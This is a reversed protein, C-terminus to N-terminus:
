KNAKVLALIEDARGNSGLVDKIKHEVLEKVYSRGDAIYQRPDFHEPHAAELEQLEKLLKDFEFDSITPASLVYYNYNHRDLERRLNQIKESIEM